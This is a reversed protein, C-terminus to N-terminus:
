CTSLGTLVNAAAALFGYGALQGWQLADPLVFDPLSLAGCVVLAGLIGAGFLSIRKEAAGVARFTVISVAGGFGAFVAGVHGVSLERFGPRLVILVGIFGLVVASWRKLGVAEKLFLVSMITVFAPQLFMLVMAEAMSLHTFATVSGIVGAPYAFFRLLWIPRSTTRFIDSWHDGPQLLFPLVTLGFVAGFFATEYPPLGGAILKACTDSLSFVAFSAFGLFVGM